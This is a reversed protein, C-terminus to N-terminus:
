RGRAEAWREASAVGAAVAEAETAAMADIHHTTNAVGTELVLVVRYRGDAMQGTQVGVTGIRRLRDMTMNWDVKAAHQPALGLADPAPLALPQQAAKQMPVPRITPPPPADDIKGRAIMPAPQNLPRAGQGQGQASPNWAPAGQFQGQPWGQPGQVMQGQPMFQPGSAIPLSGIM